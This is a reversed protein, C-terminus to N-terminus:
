MRDLLQQKKAVFEQEDLVGADRLEALKRIQEIPDPQATSEPATPAAAPPAQMLKRMQRALEDGQGHQLYKIESQNGSSHITLVEGTMKSGVNVSNVSAIPFEEVTQSGLSKEFFFLRQDTLVVLGQKDGYRGQGLQVVNEVGHLMHQVYKLEKRGFVRGAKGLREVAGSLGRDDLASPEIQDMLDDLLSYHKNGAMDVRMVSTAKGDATPEVEASLDAAWRNKMLSRAAKGRIVGGSEQVDLGLKKFAQAMIQRAQEPAVSLKWEATRVIGM